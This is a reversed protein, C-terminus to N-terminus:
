KGMLTSTAYGTEVAHDKSTLRCSPLWLRQGVEGSGFHPSCCESWDGGKALPGLWHKPSQQPTPVDGYFLVGLIKNVWKLIKQHYSYTLTGPQTFTTSTSTSIFKVIKGFYFCNGDGNRNLMMTAVGVAAADGWKLLSGHKRAAHRISSDNEWAEALGGLCNSAVEGDECEPEMEDRRAM